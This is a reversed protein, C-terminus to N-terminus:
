NELAVPEGLSRTTLAALVSASVNEILFPVSGDTMMFHCGGPHYSSAGTRRFGWIAGSGSSFQGGPVTFPGNIGDYTDIYGFNAWPHGAYSGQGGGTVEGVMFTNSTGDTVHKLDTGHLAGLVGNNVPFQKPWLNDCSWDVSDATVAMNSQRVDEDPHVGNSGTGTMVVLEGQQPDSPCLYTGLRTAAVRFNPLTSAVSLQVGPDFQEWVATQEMYPLILVGWGFGYWTGNNPRPGCTSRQTQVWIIHSPPFTGIADHYTHMALGVQRFNNACHSRRAAERASQVAPLLLAVLIGIIAIVVLLEVLTFARVANTSKVSLKGPM